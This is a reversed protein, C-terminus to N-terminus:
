YSENLVGNTKKFSRLMKTLSITDSDESNYNVETNQSFVFGADWGRNRRHMNQKRRRNETETFAAMIRGTQGRGAMKTLVSRCPLYLETTSFERNRAFFALLSTM